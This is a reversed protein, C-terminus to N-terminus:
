FRKSPSFASLWSQESSELKEKKLQHTKLNSRSKFMKIIKRFKVQILKQHRVNQRYTVIKHKKALLTKWWDSKLSNMSHDASSSLCSQILYQEAFWSVLSFSSWSWVREARCTETPYKLLPLHRWVGEKKACIEACKCRIINM